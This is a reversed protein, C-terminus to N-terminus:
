RGREGGGGDDEDRDKEDHDRYAEDRDRYPGHGNNHEDDDESLLGDEDSEGAFADYLEGARRGRKRRVAGGDAGPADVDDDDGVMEFAYEDRANRIRRRRVGYFYGGLALTFVAVLGVGGYIWRQTSKTAGFTPFPSPLFGSDDNNDNEDGAANSSGSEAPVDGNGSGNDDHASGNGNHESSGSDNGDSIGNDGNGNGSSSGDSNPPETDDSGPPRAQGPDPIEQGTDDGKDATPKAIVPRTPHGSGDISSISTPMTISTIVPVDTVKAEDPNDETPLPLLSQNSGDMAEGFLRLRWTQFTGSKDNEETDKVIISWNGIGSEGFHAVSMFTWNSYGRAVNDFQRPTSLHSTVGFPSKLEVSLDGRRQHDVNMTIAVHELRKVNAAKLMDATVEFTSALGKDGQPVPKSVHIIPSFYWAQPNVNNWSKAAHVIAYADLKGYGFQHSFRRGTATDQWDNPAADIPVANMVTLWQLDRWSLDPRVSLVLAYVGSALPGAASTGGHNGTCKNLGVDTTHIGDGAGSSYTVVLQASCAESYYPHHDTKDIAGVTISDISNTYGDFNCNDGAAAGNGAAFVYITGLGGRGQQVARAIARRSLIDPAQMTRGDDPPGWSCSFIDNGNNIQYVISEAEDVDSLPGSLMRVGSIRADYAVGVGCIDNKVAAVEGACRTGHQDDALRPKPEDVGENFDYSGAPYYNAALDLSDLDLGDDIICVTSNKGTIGELWLGTVNLDHGVEATNFIHWQADFIPDRISLSKAITNRQDVAASSQQAKASRDSFSPLVSRKFLRQRPEQKRSLLIGDLIHPELDRKALRRLKLEETADQVIDRDGKPVLFVHHDPLNALPGEHRLGLHAALHAPSTDSDLHLAYYDYTNYDRSSRASAQFSCAAAVLGWLTSPRM